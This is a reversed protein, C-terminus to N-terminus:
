QIQIIGLVLVPHGLFHCIQITFLLSLYRIKLRYKASKTNTIPRIKFSNSTAVLMEFCRILCVHRPWIFVRQCLQVLRKYIQIQIHWWLSCFFRNEAEILTLKLPDFATKRTKPWKHGTNKLPRAERIKFSNKEPM